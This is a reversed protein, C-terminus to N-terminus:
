RQASKNIFKYQGEIEQMLIRDAKFPNFSSIRTKNKDTNYEAVHINKDDSVVSNTYYTTNLLTRQHTLSELSNNLLKYVQGKFEIFQGKNPKHQIEIVNGEPLSRITTKEDPWDGHMMYIKDDGICFVGPRSGMGDFPSIQKVILEKTFADVLDGTRGTEEQRVSHPHKAFSYKIPAVVVGLRNKINVLALTSFKEIQPTRGGIFDFGRSADEKRTEFVGAISADYLKGDLSELGQIAFADNFLFSIAMKRNQKDTESNIGRPIHNSVTPLRQITERFQSEGLIEIAGNNLGIYWDGLHKIAVQPKAFLQDDKEVPVGMNQNIEYTEWIKEPRTGATWKFVVSDKGSKNQNVKELLFEKAM